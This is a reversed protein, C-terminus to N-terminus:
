SKDELATVEYHLIITGDSCTQSDLLHVRNHLESNFLTIGNGFVVPNVSIYLENVLGSNMYESYVSIGGCVVLGKAREDILRQILEKPTEETAEVRPYKEIEGPRHTLVLLRRDPFTKNFVTPYKKATALFTNMGMILCNYEKVLRFFLAKDSGSTWTTPSQESDRAIYGDATIAALLIVKM